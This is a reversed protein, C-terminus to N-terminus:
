RKGRQAKRERKRERRKRKHWDRAKRKGRGHKSSGSAVERAERITMEKTLRQLWEPWSKNMSGVGMREKGLGSYHQSWM